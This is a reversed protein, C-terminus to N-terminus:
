ANRIFKQFEMKQLMAEQSNTGRSMIQSLQYRQTIQVLNEPLIVLGIRHAKALFALNQFFFEPQKKVIELMEKLSYDLDRSEQYSGNIYQIDLGLRQSNPELFFNNLEIISIRKEKDPIKEVYDPTINDLALLKGNLPFIFSFTNKSCKFIEVRNEAYGINLLIKKFRGKHHSNLNPGFTTTIKRVKGYQTVLKLIDSIKLQGSDHIMVHASECEYVTVFCTQISDTFFGNIEENSKEIVGASDQTIEIFKDM